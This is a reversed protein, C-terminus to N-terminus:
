FLAFREKQTVQGAADLCKTKWLILMNRANLCYLKAFHLRIAYRFRPLNPVTVVRGSGVRDSGVRGSGIRGSGVRDSGFRVRKKVGGSSFGQKSDREFFIVNGSSISSSSSSANIEGNGEM